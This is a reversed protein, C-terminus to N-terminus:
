SRRVVRARHHRDRPVISEVHRANGSGIDLTGSAIAAATAPGNATAVIEVDLGQQKFFGEDAAYYISGCALTGACALVWRRRNQPM